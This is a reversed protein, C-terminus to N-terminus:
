TQTRGTFIGLMRHQSAPKLNEETLSDAFGQLDGLTIFRLQKNVFKLFRVIDSSYAKQTHPSRGHLWLAIVQEDNHAQKVIQGEELQPASNDKTPLLM